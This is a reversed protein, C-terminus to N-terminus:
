VAETSPRGRRSTVTVVVAGVLLLGGGFALMRGVDSGTAPLGSTTSAPRGAAETGDGLVGNGDTGNGDTGSGGGGTGGALCALYGTQDFVGGSTFDAASCSAPQAGVPSALLFLAAMAFMLPVLVIARLDKSILQM